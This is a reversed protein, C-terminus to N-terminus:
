DIKSLLRERLKPNARIAECAKQMGQFRAPKGDDCAMMTGDDEVFAYWSGAQSLVRMSLLLSALDAEADIGTYFMFPYQGLLRDPPFGKSKVVRVKVLMGWATESNGSIEKGDGDLYHGPMFQLRVFSYFKVARGGPTAFPKYPDMSDRVQNVLILISRSSAVYPIVERLFRTMVKAIGGRKPEESIDKSIEDETSLTPISDIVMCGVVGERYLTMAADLISEASQMATPKLIILEKPDLGMTRCREATLSQELDIYVVRGEEKNAKLLSAMNKAYDIATTTKGSSEPGFFEVISGRPLGGHTMYNLSPSTSPVRECDEYSFGVSAVEANLTSNIRKLVDEVKGKAAM